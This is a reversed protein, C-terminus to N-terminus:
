NQTKKLNQKYLKEYQDVVYEIDFRKVYQHAWKQWTERLADDELLLQMREAYAVPDNCDVLSLRGTDRLTWRYGENPHAVIPAQMAMAEALVIGFSEGYLAPSTYIGCINFLEIKRKDSVTGTFTIDVIGNSSVYHELSERLPGDGTIVLRLKPKVQKLLEYANIVQMAGKRKELRGMFFIMNRDRKLNKPQFKKLEICNPIYHIPQEIDDSIFGTAAPSVATVVDIHPIVSRAYTRYTSILSKGLTNGPLAAHFTGVRTALGESRSLLQRAVIPVLPEHVHLIDFDNELIEDIKKNYRRSASVDPSTAHPAKIRASAGLFIVGNPAENEYKKRPRPTILTVKHGRARLARAQLAVHEQVGGPKFINYPTFIAIKM